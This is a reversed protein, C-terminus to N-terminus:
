TPGAKQIPCPLPDCRGPDPPPLRPIRPEPLRRPWGPAAARADAAPSCLVVDRADFEIAVELSLEPGSARSLELATDGSLIRDGHACVVLVHLATVGADIELSSGGAADTRMRGASYWAGSERLTAVAVVANEFPVRSGQTVVEVSLRRPPRVEAESAGAAEIRLCGILAGLVSMDRAFKM